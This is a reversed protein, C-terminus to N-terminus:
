KDNKEFLNYYYIPTASWGHCLSGANDFAVKGDITEWVTGTEIMREYDLRIKSIIYDKAGKGGSKILADYVFCKMSLSCEGLAGGTLKQCIREEENTDLIGSLVMLANPLELAKNDLLVLGKEKDYLKERIKFSLANLENQWPFELETIKCIERYAKLAIVTLLSLMVDTKKSESSFLAGDLSESWDFFNWYEEGEFNMQLGDQTNSIFVSLVSRVKSDVEFIL